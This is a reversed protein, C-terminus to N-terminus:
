PDENLIFVLDEDSWICENGTKNEYAWEWRVNGTTSDLATVNKSEIVCLNGVNRVLLLIYASEFKRQWIIQNQLDVARVTSQSDIAYIHKGDFIVSWLPGVNVQAKLAGSQLDLVAIKGSRAPVCVMGQGCLPAFRDTLLYDERDNPEYEYKWRQVNTDPEFAVISNIDPILWMEGDVLEPLGNEEPWPLDVEHRGTQKNLGTLSYDNSRIWLKDKGLTIGLDTDSDHNWLLNGSNIDFASVRTNDNAIRLVVYLVNEDVVLQWARLSTMPKWLSAGDSANIGIFSEVSSHLPDSYADYFIKGHGFRPFSRLWKEERILQGDRANLISLTMSSAINHSMAHGPADLISQLQLWMTFSCIFGLLVVCMGAVLRKRSAAIPRKSRLYGLYSCIVTSLFIMYLSTSSLLHFDPRLGPGWRIANYYAVVLSVAIAGAVGALGYIAIIAFRKMVAHEAETYPQTIGM